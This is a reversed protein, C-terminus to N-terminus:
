VRSCRRAAAWGDGDVVLMLRVWVRRKEVPSVKKENRSEAFGFKALIRSVVVYKCVQRHKGLSNVHFKELQMGAPNKEHSIM